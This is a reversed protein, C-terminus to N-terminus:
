IFEYHELFEVFRGDERIEKQFDENKLLNPFVWPNACIFEMSVLRMPEKRLDSYLEYVRDPVVMDAAELLVLKEYIGRFGGESQSLTMMAVDFEEEATEFDGKVHHLKPIILATEIICGSNEDIPLTIEHFAKEIIDHATETDGERLILAAHNAEDNIQIPCVWDGHGDYHAQWQDKWESAYQEFKGKVMACTMNGNRWASLNCKETKEVTSLASEYQQFSDLSGDALFQYYKEEILFNTKEPDLVALQAYLPGMEAFGGVLMYTRAMDNILEKNGRDLQYSKNFYELAKDVQEMRRYIYGLFALSDADNPFIALAKDISRLASMYDRKIVHYYYGEARLTAIHNPDRERAKAISEELGKEARLTEEEGDDLNKAQWSLQGYAMVLLAQPEVFHPDLSAAMELQEIAKRLKDFKVWNFSVVNRAKVYADYAEVNRTPIIDLTAQEEPSIRANLAGAIERAIASQLDFINVLKRDFNQAYLHQDTMADILQVTIRVEDGARRVSGEVIYRVGLDEGIKRLNDTQDKYRMVSTRSTVQLDKVTALNTLIDEHVGGAFFANEEDASLNTFPLVAISRDLNEEASGASPRLILVAMVIIFGITPVAAGLGFAALNRKRNHTKSLTGPEEESEEPTLKMGSPTLEFAWALVIVLPFGLTAMIIVLRMSWTPVEFTPLVISAAQIVLWAVVLYAGAARFVKRRKLESFLGPNSPEPKSATKEKDDM